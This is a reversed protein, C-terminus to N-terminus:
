AAAAMPRLTLQRAALRGRIARAVHEALLPPVANGIQVQASRRTGVIV